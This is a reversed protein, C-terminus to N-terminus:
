ESCLHQENSWTSCKCAPDNSARGCLSCPEYYLKERVQYDPPGRRVDFYGSDYQCLFEGPVLSPDNKGAINARITLAGLPQREEQLGKSETPDDYSGTEEADSPFRLGFELNHIECRDEDKINLSRAHAELILDENIQVDLELREHFAKAQKDVKVTITALQTRLENPLVTKGARKPACVQFKAVGDRPDTCYLHFCDTNVEGERPMATGAKVISLYSNRALVLEINKALQLSAKDMAIWAAGEAILTATNNPIEVREPGFWEHLRRRVVPM